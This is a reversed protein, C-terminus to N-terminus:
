AKTQRQVGVFHLSQRSSLKAQNTETVRCRPITQRSSPNDRFSQVTVKRQLGSVHVLKDLAQSTEAIRCSPFKTWLRPQRQLEVGHFTQRSRPKDRCGQVHFLKDLAQNTEAIRCRPFKTWLRTQRQLEVGHFTAVHFNQGSGPKDRCNHVTSYKTQLKTHRQLEAGHFLRIELHFNGLFKCMCKETHFVTPYGRTPAQLFQLIYM